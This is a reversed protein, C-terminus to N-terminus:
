LDHCFRVYFKIRDVRLETHDNEIYYTYQSHLFYKGDKRLHYIFFTNEARFIFKKM